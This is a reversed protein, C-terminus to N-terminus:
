AKYGNHLIERIDNMCFANLAKGAIRKSRTMDTNRIRSKLELLVSPPVSLEEIGMGILLETAAAHSAIEGCLGVKVNNAKAADIVSKIMRLVAPHFPDFIDAVLENTRDAALTYQTLDNTGISFYDVHCAIDPALMVAAPTEIMIGIPLNHDYHIGKADLEVKCKEVLDISELVEGINSIMPLLLRVNKNKSARLIAKVQIEFLDKRSLLFRIGRFGLAPNDEHKPIGEAYKDSGVDFVRITVPHPYIRESLKNYWDYQEEISPFVKVPFIMHETRVLGIGEAGVKVANEVERTFDINALLHIKKGDKTESPLKVLKGLKRKYKIEDAKKKRYALRTEDSPNTIVTGTFGNMVINKGNKIGSTANKVGIVAPIELSRALISVHGAIGGVETVLGAIGIEKFHVIDTPTLSNAVVISDKCASHFINRNRLAALLREKLHDLEAAKERLIRDNSHKFFKMQADFSQIVASEAAISTKIINQVSEIFFPDKLIIINASIIDGVEKPQQGVKGLAQDFEKILEETSSAFRELESDIESESIKVTPVVVKEPKIVFSKGVATGPSSPIGKLLKEKQTTGTRSVSKM